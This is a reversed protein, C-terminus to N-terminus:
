WVGGVVVGGGSPSVSTTVSVGPTPWCRWAALALGVSFAAGVGALVGATRVRAAAEAAPRQLSTHELQAQADVAVGASIASAILFAASGAILTVPLVKSGNGATTVLQPMTVPALDLSDVYGQYYSAGFPSEFLSQSLAGAVSGRVADTRAAWELSDLSVREGAALSVTSERDKSVVFFRGVPVAIVALSHVDLSADLVRKGSEEEVYFHGATFAGTLFASQRFSSTTLLPAHVNARPALAIVRPVARPDKLGRNASAIFAQLESYEIAGDGNVDAAGSLGSLVEHSFVGAEIRSWEHASQDAATALLAGVRPFRTSVKPEFALQARRPDVAVATAQTEKDFAGRGGVISEAHCADVFLHVFAPELKALVSDALQQRTLHGNHMALFYAGQEDQSGHGSFTVYVVPEDGRAVDAHIRAEIAAVARELQAVDPVRAREALGPYRRQTEEDLVTLLQAEDTFREFFQFYRIADDDAYRLPTLSEATGTPPENNGIVLAYSTTRALAVTSSLVALLTVLRPNM